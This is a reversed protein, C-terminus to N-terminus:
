VFLTFSQRALKLTLETEQSLNDVEIVIFNISTM